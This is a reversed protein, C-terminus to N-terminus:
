LSVGFAHEVKAASGHASVFLRDKPVSGVTLGESRLWHEAANVEARTPAYRATWQARTLYHHFQKNHPTSVALAFKRAGAANRLKLTLDFSVTSKASVAGAPHARAAAPLLSGRLAVRNPSPST